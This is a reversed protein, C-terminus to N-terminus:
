RPPGERHCNGTPKWQEATCRPNAPTGDPCILEPIDSANVIDLQDVGLPVGALTFPAVYREGPKLSAIWTQALATKHQCEESLLAIREQDPSRGALKSTALIGAMAGIVLAVAALQHIRARGNTEPRLPPSM